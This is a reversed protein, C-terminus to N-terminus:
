SLNYSGMSTKQFVYSFVPVQEYVRQVWGLLLIFWQTCCDILDYLFPRRLTQFDLPARLIPHTYYARGGPQSLTLKDALFQPPASKRRAGM